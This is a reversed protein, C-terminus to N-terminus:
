EREGGLLVALDALTMGMRQAKRSLNHCTRCQRGGGKHMFTNEPTFEHGHKCHTKNAVRFYAARANNEGQTVAELHAPNVCRRNRCRHDIHLGSPIKGVFIEYAARHAQLTRGRFGIRGYGSTAIAGTFIWCDGRKEIKELLRDKLPRTAPM